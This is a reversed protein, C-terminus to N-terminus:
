KLVGCISDDLFLFEELLNEYRITIDGIGITTDYVATIMCICKSNDKTKVLKGLLTKASNFDFPQYKPEEKVRYDASAWNWSPNKVEKWSMGTNISYEIEKGDCYAQMVAIMEKTTEEM